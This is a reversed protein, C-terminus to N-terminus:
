KIWEGSIAKTGDDDLFADVSEYVAMYDDSIIIVRNEATHVARVWCGGGTHIMETPLIAETKNIFNENTM